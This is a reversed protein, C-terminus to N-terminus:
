ANAGYFREVGDIYTISMCGYFATAVHRWKGALKRWGQIYWHKFPDSYIGMEWQKTEIM